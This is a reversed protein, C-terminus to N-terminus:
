PPAITAKGFQRADCFPASENGNACGCEPRTCAQFWVLESTMVDGNGGVLGIDFGITNSFTATGFTPPRVSM